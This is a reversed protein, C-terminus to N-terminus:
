FFNWNCTHQAAWFFKVLKYRADNTLPM